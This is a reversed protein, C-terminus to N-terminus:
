FTISEGLVGNSGTTDLHIGQAISRKSHLQLREACRQFSILSIATAVDNLCAKLQDGDVAFRSCVLPPPLGMRKEPM